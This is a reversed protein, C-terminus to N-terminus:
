FLYVQHSTKIIKIKIFHFSKRLKPAGINGPGGRVAPAAPANHVGRNRITECCVIIRNRWEEETHIPTNYVLTKLRGWLFFDLSNLDPTVTRNM